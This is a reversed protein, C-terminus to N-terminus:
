RLRGYGDFKRRLSCVAVHSGTLADCCRGKKNRYVVADWAPAFHGSRLRKDCNYDDLWGLYAVLLLESELLPKCLVM